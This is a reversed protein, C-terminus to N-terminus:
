ICLHKNSYIPKVNHIKKLDLHFIRIKLQRLELERNQLSEDLDYNFVDEEFSTFKSDKLSVAENNLARITRINYNGYANENAKRVLAFLTASTEFRDTDM